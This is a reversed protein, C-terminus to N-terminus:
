TLQEGHPQSPLTYQPQILRPRLRLGTYAAKVAEIADNLEVSIFHILHGRCGSDCDSAGFGAVIASRGGALIAKNVTCELPRVTSAYAVTDVAVASSGLLYDIHWFAPKRRRLHRTMRAPLSAGGKGRASGTYAYLGPQLHTRGLRGVHLRTDAKVRLLLTYIGRQGRQKPEAAIRHM